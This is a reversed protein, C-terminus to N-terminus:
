ISSKGGYRGFHFHLCETMLLQVDCNPRASDLQLSSYISGIKYFNVRLRQTNILQM